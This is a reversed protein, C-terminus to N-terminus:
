HWGLERPCCGMWRGEGHGARQGHLLDVGDCERQPDVQGLELGGRWVQRRQAPQLRGHPRHALQGEVKADVGAPTHLGERGTKGNNAVSFDHLEVERRWAEPSFPALALVRFMLSSLSLCFPGGKLIFFSVVFTPRPLFFFFFFLGSVNVYAIDTSGGLFYFIPVKILGPTPDEAKIIGSNFIGIATVRPDTVIAYAQAAGCSQGSVAIRSPDVVGSYSFNGGKSASVWDMAEKHLAPNPDTTDAVGNPNGPGNPVGNAIIFVGHSAVEQLFTQFVLSNGTCGTQGWVLVPLKLTSPPNTPAFITHRPLSPDTRYSKTLPPSLPKFTLPTYTVGPLTDPLTPSAKGSLLTRNRGPEHRDANESKGM